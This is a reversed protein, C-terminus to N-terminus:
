YEGGLLCCCRVSASRCSVIIQLESATALCLLAQKEMRGVPICAMIQGRRSCSRRITKAMELIVGARLLGHMHSRFGIRGGTVSDM